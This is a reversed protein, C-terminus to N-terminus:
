FGDVCANHHRELTCFKVDHGSKNPQGAPTNVLTVLGLVLAFSRMRNSTAGRASRTRQGDRERLEEMWQGRM